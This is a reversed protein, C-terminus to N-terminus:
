YRGWGSSNNLEMIISKLCLGACLSPIKKSVDDHGERRALFTSLVHQNEIGEVSDSSPNVVLISRNPPPIIVNFLVFVSHPYGVVQPYGPYWRPVGAPPFQM